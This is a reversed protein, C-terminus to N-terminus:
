KNGDEKSEDAWRIGKSRLRLHIEKRAAALRNRIEGVTKFGVLYQAENATLAKVKIDFISPIENQYREKLM